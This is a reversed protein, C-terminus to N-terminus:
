QAIWMLGVAILCVLAGLGIMILVDKWMPEDKKNNKPM